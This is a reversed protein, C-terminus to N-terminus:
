IYKLPIMVFDPEQYFSLSIFDKKYIDYSIRLFEQFKKKFSDYQIIPHDKFYSKPIEKRLIRDLFEIKTFHSDDGIFFTGKSTKLVLKTTVM